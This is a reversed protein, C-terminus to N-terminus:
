FLLIKLNLRSIDSIYILKIDTKSYVVLIVGHSLKGVTVGDIVLKDNKTYGVVSISIM